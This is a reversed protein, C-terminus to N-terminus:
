RPYLRALPLLRSHDDILELMSPQLNQTPLWRHPSADYQWLQGIQQVQWRRVPKLPKKHRTDPALNNALAWRRVTARDLPLDHRRHVESAAFSYSSPPKSALLKRLLALVAPPWAQCQNGGSLGPRWQHQRRLACLALYSAFLVYFRSRSVGLEAAADAAAITQTRFRALVDRIFPAAHRSSL